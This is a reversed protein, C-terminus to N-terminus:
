KYILKYNHFSDSIRISKVILFNSANRLNSAYASVNDFVIDFEKKDKKTQLLNKFLSWKLKEIELIQRFPHLSRGM